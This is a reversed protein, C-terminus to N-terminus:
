RALTMLSQIVTTALIRDGDTDISETDDLPFADNVDLVGDDDDDTDCANGHGDSDATDLQDTNAVQQCNVARCSRCAPSGASTGAGAICAATMLLVLTSM